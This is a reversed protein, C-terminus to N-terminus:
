GLSTFDISLRIALLEDKTAFEGRNLSPIQLRKKLVKLLDSTFESSIEVKTVLLM